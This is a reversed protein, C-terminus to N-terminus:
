VSSSRQAQQLAKIFSSPDQKSNAQLSQNGVTFTFNYNPGSGGVSDTTSSGKASTTTNSTGKKSIEDLLRSQERLTANVEKLKVNQQNYSEIAANVKERAAQIDAEKQAQINAIEADRKQNSAVIEAQLKEQIAVIEATNKEQAAVIAAEKDAKLDALKQALDSQISLRSQAQAENAAAISRQLEIDIDRLKQQHEVEIATLTSEHQTQIDALKKDSETQAAALKSALEENLAAIKSHSEEEIAKQKTLQESQVADKASQLVQENQQIQENLKRIASWKQDEDIKGETVLQEIKKRHLATADKIAQDYVEKGQDGAQAYLEIIKKTDETFAIVESASADGKQQTLQKKISDAADKLSEFSKTSDEISKQNLEAIKTVADQNVSVIADATDQQLKVITDAHDAIEKDINETTNTIAKIVSDNTNTAADEISQNQKVYAEAIQETTKDVLDSIKSQSDQVAKAINETLDTDTKELDDKLSASSESLSENYDSQAAALDQKLTVSAKSLEEQYATQNGLAALEDKADTIAQQASEWASTSEDVKTKAQDLLTQQRSLEDNQQSLAETSGKASEVSQQSSQIDKELNTQKVSYLEKTKDLQTQYLGILERNNQQRAEKLKAEIDAIKQQQELQLNLRDSTATDGQEAALEANLEVLADKAEQVADKMSEMEDRAKSIASRVESLDQEDLLSFSQDVQRTANELFTLSTSGNEAMNEISSKLNEVALKQEYFTKSTEAAAFKLAAEYVGFNNAALQMEKRASKMSNAASNIEAQFKDTKTAQMTSGILRIGKHLDFASVAGGEFGAKLVKQDFYLKSAESLKGVEDRVTKINNAMHRAAAAVDSMGKGSKKHEETAKKTEEAEKKIQRANQQASYAADNKADVTERLQNETEQDAQTWEKDVAMETIKASLSKEAIAAEKSRANALTEAQNIRSETVKEEAQAIEVVDGRIKAVNLAGEAEKVLVDQYRESSASSRSQAEAQDKYLQILAGIPGAALKALQVQREKVKIDSESAQTGAIEAARRLKLTEIAKRLQENNNGEAISQKELSAIEDNTANLRKVDEHFQEKAIDLDEQAVGLDKERAVTLNGQSLALQKELELTKQQNTNAETRLSAELEYQKLREQIKNVSNQYSVIESEIQAKKAKSILISQQDLQLQLKMLALREKEEKSLEKGAIELGELGQIELTKILVNKESADIEQQISELRLQDSKVLSAIIDAEAGLNQSRKLTATNWEDSLEIEKLKIENNKDQFTQLREYQTIIANFEQNASQLSRVLEQFAASLGLSSAELSLSAPIAQGTANSYAIQAKAMDLFGQQVSDIPAETKKLIDFSVRLSDAVQKLQEPVGLGLRAFAQQVPDVSVKLETLKKKVDSTMLGLQEFSLVGDNKLRILQEIIANIETETNAKALVGEFSTQLQQATTKGSLGLLGFADIMRKTDFDMGTIVETWDIGLTAYVSRMNEGLVQAAKSARDQQEIIKAWVDNQQSETFQITAGRLNKYEEQLRNIETAADAIIQQNQTFSESILSNAVETAIAEAKVASINAERQNLTKEIGIRQEELKGINKEINAREKENTKSEEQKQAIQLYINKLEEKSTKIGLESLQVLQRAQDIEAARKKELDGLVAAEKIKAETQAKISGEINDYEAKLLKLQIQSERELVSLERQRQIASVTAQKKKDLSSIFDTDGAIAKQVEETTLGTQEAYAALAKKTLDNATKLNSSSTVLTKNIGNLKEQEKALQKVQDTSKFWVANLDNVIQQQKAQDNLLDSNTSQLSEESKTLEVYKKSLADLGIQRKGELVTLEEQSKILELNANNRQESDSQWFKLVNTFGVWGNTLQSLRSGQQDILEIENQLTEIYEKTDAIKDKATVNQNALQAATMKELASAYEDTSKSLNKTAEDQEKFAFAMAAFGAIALAIMGAPGTILAWSKSLLGTSAVVANQAVGVSATSAAYTRNAIAAQATALQLEKLAIAHAITGRTAVETATASVLQQQSYVKEALAAQAKAEAAALAAVASTQSATAGLRTSLAYEKIGAVASTIGQGLKVFSLVLGSGIIGALVESNKGLTDLASTISSWVGTDGLRKMLLAWATEIRNTAQAFTVSSTALKGYRQDLEYAFPLLADASLQGAEMLALMEGTTINLAKAMLQLSGPIAEALQGKLEEAYIQTKSMMQSLANFARHTQITDGGLVAMASSVSEFIKKASEGELNTEKSAAIFKVYNDSMDLISIGYRKSQEALYDFEKGAGEASGTIATLGRILTEIKKNTDVFSTGLRVIADQGEVAARIRLALSLDDM